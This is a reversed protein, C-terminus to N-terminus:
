DTYEYTPDEADVSFAIKARTLKWGEGAEENRLQFFMEYGYSVQMPIRVRKKWRFMPVLEGTGFAAGTYTDGVYNDGIYGSNANSSMFDADTIRQDNQDSGTSEAGDVAIDVYITAGTPKTGELDVWAWATREGFRFTKSRWLRLYGAYDDSFGKNFKYVVPEQNSGFYLQDQKNEDRFVCFQNLLPLTWYVWNDVGFRRKFNEDYVLVHGNSADTGMAVGFLAKNNIYAGTQTASSAFNINRINPDIKFSLPLPLNGQVKLDSSGYTQVGNKSLYYTYGYASLVSGGGMAGDSANIIPQVQPAVFNGNSDLNTTVAHISNDKYVQLVDNNAVLATVSQGDGVNIGLDAPNTDISDADAYFVTSPTAPDGSYHPTNEFVAFVSAEGISASVNSLTTGDWKQVQNAGNGFILYDQFMMGNMFNREDAYATSSVQTSSNNGNIIYHMEGDVFIVLRDQTLGTTNFYAPLLGHIAGSTFGIITAIEYGYRTMISGNQTLSMNVCYPSESPDLAYPEDVTNLGTFRQIDIFQLEGPQM